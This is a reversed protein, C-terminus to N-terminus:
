STRESYIASTARISGEYTLGHGQDDLIVYVVCQGVRQGRGMRVKERFKCIRVRCHPSISPKNPRCTSKELYTKVRSNHKASCSEILSM